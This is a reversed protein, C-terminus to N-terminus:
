TVGPPLAIVLAGGPVVITTAPMMVMVVFAAIWNFGHADLFAPFLFAAGALILNPHTSNTARAYYLARCVAM